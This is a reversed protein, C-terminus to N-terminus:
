KVRVPIYKDLSFTKKYKQFEKEIDSKKAKALEFVKVRADTSNLAEALANRDAGVLEALAYNGDDSLQYQFALIGAPTTAVASDPAKSPDPPAPVFMPRIPDALTGTGIMPVVCLVRTYLNESAVHGQAFLTVAFVSLAVISRIM